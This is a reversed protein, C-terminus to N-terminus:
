ADTDQRHPNNKSIVALARTGYFLWAACLLPGFLGLTTAITIVADTWRAFEFM